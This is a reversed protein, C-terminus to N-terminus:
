AARKTPQWCTWDNLEEDFLRVQPDHGDEKLAKIVAFLDRAEGAVKIHRGPAIMVQVEKDMEKEKIWLHHTKKSCIKWGHLATSFPAEPWRRTILKLTGTFGPECGDFRM